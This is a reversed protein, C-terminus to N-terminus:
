EGLIKAQNDRVIKSDEDMTSYLSERMQDMRPQLVLPDKKIEKISEKAQELKSKTSIRGAADAPSLTSIEDNLLTIKASLFKDLKGLLTPSQEKRIVSIVNKIHDNLHEHQVFDIINNYKGETSSKSVEVFAYNGTNDIYATKNLTINTKPDNYKISNGSLQAKDAGGLYLKGFQNSHEETLTVQKYGRKGLIDNAKSFLKSEDAIDTIFQASIIRKYYDRDEAAVFLPSINGTNIYNKDFKLSDNTKSIQQVELALGKIAKQAQEVIPTPDNKTINKAADDILKNTNGCGRGALIGIILTGAILTSNFIKKKNQKIYPILGKAKKVAPEGEKVVLAKVEKGVEKNGSFSVTDVSNSFKAPKHQKNPQNLLVQYNHSNYIKM